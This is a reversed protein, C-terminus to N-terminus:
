WDGDIDPDHPANEVGGQGDIAEYTVPDFSCAWDSGNVVIVGDVIRANAIITDLDAPEKGDLYTLVEVKLDARDINDTM